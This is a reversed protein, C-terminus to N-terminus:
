RFRFPITFSLQRLSAGRPPAPFPSSRSVAVTQREGVGPSSPMRLFLAAATGHLCLAVAFSIWFPANDQGLPNM